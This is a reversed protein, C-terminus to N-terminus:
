NTGEAAYISFHVRKGSIPPDNQVITRSNLYDLKVSETLNRENNLNITLERQQGAKLKEIEAFHFYAYYKSLSDPPSWYLNLPTTANQTKAATRLVVDPLKYPNDNNPSYVTSNTAIPIWNDFLLPSWIRDYVDYTFRFANESDNRGVDDGWIKVLARGDIYDTLPVHIIDYYYYRFADTNTLNVTKWANVGLHLDFVPQWNEGDYNGYLFTARILYNNNKRQEPRLTYCNRTGLPFSRLNKAFQPLNESLDPSIARVIGTDILEKDSVNSINTGM